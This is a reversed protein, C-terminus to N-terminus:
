FHRITMFSAKDAPREIIMREAPISPLDNQDPDAEERTVMRLIQLNSITKEGALNTPPCM